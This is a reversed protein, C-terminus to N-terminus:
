SLSTKTGPSDITSTSMRTPQSPALASIPGRRYAPFYGAFNSADQGAAACLEEYRPQNYIEGAAILPLHQPRFKEKSQAVKDGPTVGGGMNLWPVRATSLKEIGWALLATTFDRGNRTSVNLHCEAGFPTMGFSHVACLGEEDRVGAMLVNSSDCMAELTEAPWLAGPAAKRERMFANHRELIFSTLEGRDTVFTQKADAWERLARKVSRDCGALVREAGASLDLVYLGNSASTGSHMSADSLMPHLAFYGCVYARRNVFDSWAAKMASSVTGTSIFGAFGGATFIDVETGWTRESFPCALRSGGEPDSCCYLYTPLRSGLHLAHHAEWTHWYSHPLGDLASQWAARDAVSILEQRLTV